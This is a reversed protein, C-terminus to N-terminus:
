SFSENLFIHTKSLWIVTPLVALQLVVEHQPVQSLCNACMVHEQGIMEPQSRPFGGRTRQIKYCTRCNKCCSQRDLSFFLLSLFLLLLFMQVSIATALFYLLFPLPMAGSQCIIYCYFRHLRSNYSCWLTPLESFFDHLIHWNELAFCSFCLTYRNLLIKPFNFSLCYTWYECYQSGKCPSSSISICTCSVVPLDLPLM